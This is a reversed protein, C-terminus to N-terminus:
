SPSLVTQVWALLRDPLTASAAFLDTGQASTGAILALEVPGRAVARLANVTGTAQADAEGAALFLPRPNFAFMAPESATLPSLLALADCPIIGACAALGLDAGARDGIVVVRGVDIRPLGAIADFAALVDGVPADPRLSLVLVAYGSGTLTLPFSEWSAADAGLLIVPAAPEAGAPQYLEAPIQTGDGATISVVQRPDGLANTSSVLPPLAGGSPVSAATLDNVGIEGIAEADSTPAAPIFVSTPALTPASLAYTPARTAASLGDSCGALLACASTLLAACAARGLM